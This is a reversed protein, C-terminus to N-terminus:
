EDRKEIIVRTAMDRSIYFWSWTFFTIMKNKFGALSFLHVVLWILWPLFGKFTRGGPLEIVGKKRGINAMMGRDKYAFPERQKGKELERFYRALWRGQQVAVAALQPHGKPYKETTMQAVDGLAFINEHGKVRGFEDAAIRGKKDVLGEELGDIFAGSIGGTWLLISAPFEAKDTKVVEGDYSKIQTETIVEVGMDELYKETVESVKESMQALVRPLLEILYVKCMEPDLDPYDRPMVYRKFEAFAGATEVGAPGGGAIVITTLKRREEDNTTLLAKELNKLVRNRIELAEAITKMPLAHRAVSDMGFFNTVAGTAIVLYDYLLYGSSTAIRNKEAEITQVNVMRFHFDDHKELLKRLPYAISDIELASTAIQYLLHQFTHHNERDLLVIQYGSKQLDATLHLGAFGGGIIVIRSRETRKIGLDKMGNEM